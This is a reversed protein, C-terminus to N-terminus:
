HEEAESDEEGEDMTLETMLHLGRIWQRARPEWVATPLLLKEAKRAVEITIHPDWAVYNEDTELLGYDEPTRDEEQAANVLNGFDAIIEEDPFPCVLRPM